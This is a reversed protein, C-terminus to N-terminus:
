FYSTNQPFALDRLPQRTPKLRRERFATRGFPSTPEAVSPLRFSRLSHACGVRQCSAPFPVHWDPPILVVSLHTVSIQLPQRTPKLRRERFATRGFPSTPEFGVREAMCWTLHMALWVITINLPIPGEGVKPPSHNAGSPSASPRWIIHHLPSASSCM